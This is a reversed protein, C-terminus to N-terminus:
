MMSALSSMIAQNQLLGRKLSTNMKSGVSRSKWWKEIRFSAVSEEWINATRLLVHQKYEYGIWQLIIAIKIFNM